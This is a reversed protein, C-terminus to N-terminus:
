SCSFRLKNPAFIVCIVSGSNEELINLPVSCTRQSFLYTEWFVSARILKCHRNHYADVKWECVNVLWHHISPNHETPARPDHKMGELPQREGVSPPRSKKKRYETIRSLELSQRSSWASIAVVQCDEGLRLPMSRWLLPLLPRRM